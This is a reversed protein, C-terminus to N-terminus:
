NLFDERIFIGKIQIYNYKKCDSIISIMQEYNKHTELIIIDFPVHNFLDWAPYKSNYILVNFKENIKKVIGALKPQKWKDTINHTSWNDKTVNVLFESSIGIIDCNYKEFELKYDRFYCAQKTCGPTDNKPYFYILLFKNNFNKKLSFLNHEDVLLSFDPFKSGIKLDM